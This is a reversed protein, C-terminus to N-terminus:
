LLEVEVGSENAAINGYEVRSNESGNLKMM